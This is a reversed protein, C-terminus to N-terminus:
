LSECFPIYKRNRNKCLLNVRGEEASYISKEHCNFIDGSFFISSNESAILTYYISQKDPILDQFINLIKCKLFDKGYQVYVTEEKNFKTM